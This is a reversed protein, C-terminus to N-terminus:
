RLSWTSFNYIINCRDAIVDHQRTCMHCPQVSSKTLMNAKSWFTPFALLHVVTGVCRRRSNVHGILVDRSHWTRFRTVKIEERKIFRHTSHVNRPFNWLRCTTAGRIRDMFRTCFVSVLHARVYRGIARDPSMEGRVAANKTVADAAKIPPIGEASDRNGSPCAHM